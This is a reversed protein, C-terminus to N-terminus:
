KWCRFLVRTGHDRSGGLCEVRSFLAELQGRYTSENEGAHGELYLIQKCLAAAWPLPKTQKCSLLLVVDFRTLGSLPEIEDKQGPLTLGLYDLNWYGLWNAVERALEAVHPKDVGVICRAGRRSFEHCMAGLNCGVDLVSAGNFGVEDLKMATVRTTMNRQSELGLIDGQYPESRSGWAAGERCRRALDEEYDPHVFHHQFDVMQSGIWNAENMDGGRTRIKYQDVVERRCAARDFAGGDDEVYETVQAWQKGNVQIIDYVRPAFGRLAFLNQAKTCDTLKVGTHGWDFNELPEYHHHHKFVKLCLGFRGYVDALIDTVAPSYVIFTFAGQDIRSGRRHPKFLRAPVNINLKQM